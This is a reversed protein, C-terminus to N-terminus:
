SWNQRMTKLSLYLPHKPQGSKTKGLYTAVAGSDKIVQLVSAVREPFDDGNRGWAVVVDKHRHCTDSVYYDNKPGVPDKTRKLKKPDTSRFAFLNVVAIGGFGWLKALAICKKITPDDLEWDATSPNLMVWVLVPPPGWRRWLVYRYEGEIIADKM